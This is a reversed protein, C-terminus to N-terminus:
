HESHKGEIGDHRSRRVMSRSEQATAPVAAAPVALALVVRGLIWSSNHNFRM